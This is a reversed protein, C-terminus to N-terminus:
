KWEDEMGERRGPHICMIEWKSGSIVKKDSLKKGVV